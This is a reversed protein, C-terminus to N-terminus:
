HLYHLQDSMLLIKSTFIHREDHPKLMVYRTGPKRVHSDLTMRSVIM